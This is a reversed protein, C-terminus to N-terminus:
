EAGGAESQGLVRGAGDSSRAGCDGQSYPGMDMVPGTVIIAGLTAAGHVLLDFGDIGFTSRVSM